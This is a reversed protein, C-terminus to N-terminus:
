NCPCDIIMRKTFAARDAQSWKAWDACSIGTQITACATRIAINCDQVSKLGDKTKLNNNVKTVNKANAFNVCFACVFSMLAIKVSKKM